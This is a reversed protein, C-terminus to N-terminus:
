CRLQTLYMLCVRCRAEPPVYRGGGAIGGDPMVVVDALWDCGGGAGAPAGAATAGATAMARTRDVPERGSTQERGIVSWPLVACYRVVQGRGQGSGGPVMYWTGLVSYSVKAKRTLYLYLPVQVADCVGTCRSTACCFWLAGLAVGM